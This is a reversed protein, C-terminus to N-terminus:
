LPAVNATRHGIDDSWVFCIGSRPFVWGNFDATVAREPVSAPSRSIRTPEGSSIYDLVALDTIPADTYELEISLGKTPQDVRLRLRHGDAPVVTRYTYAVTVPVRSQMADSGLTVGYTQSGAKAARRITRPEGDVTFELLQFSAMSDAKASASSPIYWVSTGVTDQNLEHFERLDSTCIFRRAPYIPVLSYEWRMTVALLLSRGKRKAGDAALPSSLHISVKANHLREPMNIAQRELDEYIERAFEADGLRIALGNTIIQDLTEPTSVRALDAPEFAFGQIVADRMAPASEALVRKLRETDRVESDQGDMYQWAVALLGTTFLGSGIDIVPWNTMFQWGATQQIWHGFILLGLGIFLLLTALLVLKTRYLRHLSDHM